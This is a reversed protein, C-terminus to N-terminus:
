RTYYLHGALMFSITYWEREAGTSDLGCVFPSGTSLIHLFEVVTFLLKFTEPFTVLLRGYSGAVTMGPYKDSLNQTLM